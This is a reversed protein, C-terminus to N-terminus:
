QDNKPVLINTKTINSFKETHNLHLIISIFWNSSLIMTTIGPELKQPSINNSMFHVLGYPKHGMYVFFFAQDM